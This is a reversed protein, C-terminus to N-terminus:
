VQELDIIQRTRTLKLKHLLAVCHFRWDYLYKWIFIYFFMYDCTLRKYVFQQLNKKIGLWDSYDEDIKKWGGPPQPPPALAGGQSRGHRSRIVADSLQVVAISDMIWATPLVYLSQQGIFDLVNDFLVKFLWPNGAFYYCVDLFSLMIKCETLIFNRFIKMSMESIKDSLLNSSWFFIIKFMFEISCFVIHFLSPADDIVYNVGFFRLSSFITFFVIWSSTTWM